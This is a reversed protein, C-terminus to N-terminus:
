SNIYSDLQAAFTSIDDASVDRSDVPKSRANEILTEKALRITELRARRREMALEHARRGSEMANQFDIQDQQEPTLAM